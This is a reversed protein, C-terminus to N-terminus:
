GGLCLLRLINSWRAPTPLFAAGTSPCSAHAAATCLGTWVKQRYARRLHHHHTARLVNLPQARSRGIRSQKTPFSCREAAEHTESMANWGTKDDRPVSKLTGEFGDPQSGREVREVRQEGTGFVRSCSGFLNTLANKGASNGRPYELWDHLCDVGQPKPLRRGCAHDNPRRGGNLIAASM